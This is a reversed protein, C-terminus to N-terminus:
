HYMIYKNMKNGGVFSYLNNEESSFSTHLCLFIMVKKCFSTNGLAGFVRSPETKLYGNLGGWFPLLLSCHAYPILMFTDNEAFFIIWTPKNSEKKQATFEVMSDVCFDRVCYSSITAQSRGAVNSTRGPFNVHVVVISTQNLPNEKEFPHNKSEMNIKRPTTKIHTQIPHFLSIGTPSQWIFIPCLSNIGSIRFRDLDAWLNKM